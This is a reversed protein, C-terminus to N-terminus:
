WTTKFGIPRFDSTTATFQNGTRQYIALENSSISNQAFIRVTSKLTAADWYTLYLRNWQDADMGILIGYAGSILSPVFRQSILNLNSDMRYIEAGKIFFIEDSQNIAWYTSDCSVQAATGLSSKFFSWIEFVGLNTNYDSAFVRDKGVELRMQSTYTTKFINNQSTTGGTGSRFVRIQNSTISIMILDNRFADYRIRYPTWAQSLTIKTPAGLATIYFVNQPDGIPTKGVSYITGLTNSLSFDNISGVGTGGVQLRYLFNASSDFFQVQNGSDDLTAFGGDITYQPLAYSVYKNSFPSRTATDVGTGSIKNNLTGATAGDVLVAWFLKQPALPYTNPKFPTFLM